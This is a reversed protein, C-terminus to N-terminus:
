TRVMPATAQDCRLCCQLYRLQPSRRIPEEYDGQRLDHPRRRLGVAAARIAGAVLLELGQERRHFLSMSTLWARRMTWVSFSAVFRNAFASPRGTSSGSSSNSDRLGAASASLARHQANYDILEKRRDDDPVLRALTPVFDLVGDAGLEAVLSDYFPKVDLEKLGFARCNAKFERVGQENSGGRASRITSVCAEYCQQAEVGTAPTPVPESAMPLPPPAVNKNRFASTFSGQKTPPSLPQSNVNRNGGSGYAGGVASGMATAMGNVNGNGNGNGNNLFSNRELPQHSYARAVGSAAAAAVPAAYAAGVPMAMPMPKDPMPPPMPPAGGSFSAGADAFRTGCESCFKGGTNAAGCEACFKPM